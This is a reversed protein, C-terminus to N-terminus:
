SGGFSWQPPATLQVAYDCAFDRLSRAPKGTLRLVTDRPTSITPHGDNIEGYENSLDSAVAEPLGQAALQRTVESGTQGTAGFVAIM